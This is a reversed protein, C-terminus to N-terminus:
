RRADEKQLLSRIEDRRSALYEDLRKILANEGPPVAVVHKEKSLEVGTATMGMGQLRWDPGAVASSTASRLDDVFSPTADDAKVYYAAPDGREVAVEMGKIKSPVSGGAPVAVIIRDEFYTATLGVYKSWATKSTLGGVVADLQYHELAEMHEQEGGWVWEPTAGIRSCFGRILEVEAGAPEGQTRVVWPPHEVLGVRLRGNAQARALTKQPDRPLSGCALACVCLLPAVFARSSFSLRNM